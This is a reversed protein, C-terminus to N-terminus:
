RPRINISYIKWSGNELVLSFTITNTAGNSVLTGTLNANDGDVRRDNFFLHSNKDTNVRLRAFELQFQSFSTKTKGISSFLDYASQYDGKKIAIFQRNAVSVAGSISIFNVAFIIATLLVLFGIAGFIWVIKKM